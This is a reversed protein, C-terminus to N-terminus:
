TQPRTGATVIGPVVVAGSACQRLSQLQAAWVRRTRELRPLLVTSQAEMAIVVEMLDDPPLAYLSMEAPRRVQNVFVSCDLDEAFLCFDGLEAWNQRMLCFTLEFSTGRARTYTRFRRVNEQMAEYRANVRISEVTERKFGDISIAVGIPLRDLVREVRRNFVTGNTTVHCPLPVSDEILMDWIRYCHEQLFPEGGLFKARELHPLYTRLEDFFADSYPDPLPPLKERHARISSSLTGNCMVCQLNCKNSISFEMQRPWEPDPSPVPLRDWKSTTLNAFARSSLHWECYSCGQSLDYRLMAERLEAIKAGTWIDGISNFAVNGVVHSWNHCCVRANGSTDFYLSTYPAYCFSRFGKTSFDRMLDYQNIIELDM